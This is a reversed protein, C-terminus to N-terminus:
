CKRKVLICETEKFYIEHYEQIETETECYGLESQLRRPISTELDCM